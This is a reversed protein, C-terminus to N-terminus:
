RENALIGVHRSVWDQLDERTTIDALRQVVQRRYALRTLATLVDYDAGLAPAPVLLTLALWVPVGDPGKLCTLPQRCRVLVLHRGKLGPVAAHPLAVGHGLAVSAREHRRMMRHSARLALTAGGHAGVQAITEFLQATDNVEVDSLVDFQAIRLERSNSSCYMTPVERQMAMMTADGVYFDRLSGPM